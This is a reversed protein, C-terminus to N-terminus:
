KPIGEKQYDKYSKNLSIVKTEHLPVRKDEPPLEMYNGFDMTLYRDYGRPIGITTDEFPCELMEAFDDYYFVSQYTYKKRFISPKVRWGFLIKDSCDLSYKGFMKEIVEIYYNYSKLKRIPTNLIWAIKRKKSTQEALTERQRGNLFVLLDCIVSSLYQALKGRPMGYVPMIDMYIGTYENVYGEQYSAIFTTRDDQMKIFNHSWHRHEKPVFLSYDERLESRAVQQFTKYDQYPMAVDIDDDWPIFGKHRVAGICTGGIAFYRLQYKDCIGKFEKLLNLEIQQIEKVLDSM